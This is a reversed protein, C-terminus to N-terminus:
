WKFDGKLSLDIKFPRIMPFRHVNLGSKEELTRVARDLHAADPGTMVFWLNLANERLYNHNVEEFSNIMEAVEEIREPPCKMAALFSYGVKHTGFVPGIRSILGAESLEGLIQQILEASAGTEVSM